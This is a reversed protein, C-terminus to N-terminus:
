VQKENKLSKGNDQYYEVVKKIDYCVNDYSDIIHYFAHKEFRVDEICSNDELESKLDKVLLELMFTISSLEELRELVAGVAFDLNANQKHVAIEM